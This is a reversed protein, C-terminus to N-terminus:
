TYYIAVGYLCFKSHISTLLLVLNKPMGSMDVVSPIIDICSPDNTHSNSGSNTKSTPLSSSDKHVYKQLEHHQILQGTSNYHIYDTLGELLAGNYCHGEEEGAATWPIHHNNVMNGTRLCSIKNNNNSNEWKSRGESPLRNPNRLQGLDTNDDDHSEMLGNVNFHQQQHCNGEKVKEEEEKIIGM